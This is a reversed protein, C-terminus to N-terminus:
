CNPAGSRKCAAEAEDALRSFPAPSTSYAFGKVIEVSFFIIAVAVLINVGVSQGTKKALDEREKDNM